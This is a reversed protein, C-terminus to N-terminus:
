RPRSTEATDRAREVIPSVAVHRALEVVQRRAGTGLGRRTANLAGAAAGFAMADLLSKGCALSVAMAALMTDGTGIPDAPTVQPGCIKFLQDNALVIAPAPGRSAVVADAGARRLRPLAEVLAGVSTDEASGEAVLETDSLKLLDIGGSLAAQLVPGTLDALVTVRNSRLDEALRRYVGPDLVGAHQPGTLCALESELADTLAVGYLEDLEHRRLRPAPVEAIPARSGGRRDHVYVGNNATGQVAHVAV